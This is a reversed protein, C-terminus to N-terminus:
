AVETINEYFNMSINSASKLLDLSKQYNKKYAIDMLSKFNGDTPKVPYKLLLAVMDSCESSNTLSMELALRIGAQNPKVNNYPLEFLMKNAITENCIIVADVLVKNVDIQTLSNESIRQGLFEENFKLTQCDFIGFLNNGTVKQSSSVVVGSWEHAEAATVRLILASSIILLKALYKMTYSKITLIREECLM